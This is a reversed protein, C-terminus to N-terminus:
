SDSNSPRENLTEKVKTRAPKKGQRGKNNDKPKAKDIVATSNVSESVPKSDPNFEKQFEAELELEKQKKEARTEGVARFTTFCTECSCYRIEGCTSTVYIKGPPIHAFECTPCLTDKGKYKVVRNQSQVFGRVLDIPLM